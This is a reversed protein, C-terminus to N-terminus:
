RRKGQGVSKACFEEKTLFGDKDTDRLKFIEEPNGKPHKVAIFEKFFVKGDNDTDMEAFRQECKMEPGSTRFLSMAFVHSNGTIIIVSLAVGLLTKWIKM